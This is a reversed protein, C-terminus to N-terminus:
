FQSVTAQRRSQFKGSPFSCMARIEAWLNLVVFEVGM